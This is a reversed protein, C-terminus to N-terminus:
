LPISTCPYQNTGYPQEPPPIRRPVPQNHHAILKLQENAANYVAGFQVCCEAWHAEHGRDSVYFVTAELGTDAHQYHQQHTQLSAKRSPKKTHEAWQWSKVFSQSFLLDSMRLELQRFHMGEAAQRLLEIVDAWHTTMSLKAQM